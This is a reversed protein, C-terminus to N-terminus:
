VKQKLLKYSTGTWNTAVLKGSLYDHLTQNLSFIRTLIIIWERILCRYIRSMQIEVAM